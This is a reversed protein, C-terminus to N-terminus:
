ANCAVGRALVAARNRFYDSTREDLGAVEFVFKLRKTADAVKREAKVEKRSKGQTEVLGVCFRVWAVVKEADVSGQHQRVEVTGHRYFAELNLKHYRRTWDCDGGVLRVLQDVTQCSNVRECATRCAELKNGTEYGGAVITAVNSRCFANVNGRRSPAVLMDVSDELRLWSKVVNKFGKLTLDRAAVHVHLGCTRNVKAGAATLAKCVKAVEELGAEGSLIPSVVECGRGGDVSSDSVVKWHSHVAHTYGMDFCAIGALQIAQVAASRSIGVIELEVGFNRNAAM